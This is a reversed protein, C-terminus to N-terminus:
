QPMAYSHLSPVFFSVGYYTFLTAVFGLTLLWAVRKGRWGRIGRAHLYLAYILWTVLASTEKPDWSWYHGWAYNAWYAGLILTLALLPFGAIVAKYGLADAAEASPLWRYRQGEGGQALMILGAGFAVCFLAYAFIAVGVHVALVPKDQLAPILAQSDNIMNYTIGLYLAVSLTVVALTCIYLGWARVREHFRIEFILYCILLATTFSMSFEYLNSWPAHQELVARLALGVFLVLVALWGLLSGARGLLLLMRSLAIAQEGDPQEPLIIEPRALIAVGGSAGAAKDARASKRSAAREAAVRRALRVSGATYWLYALTMIVILGSGAILLDQSLAALGGPPTAAAISLLYM